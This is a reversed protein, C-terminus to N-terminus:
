RNPDDEAFVSIIPSRILVSIFPPLFAPNCVAITSVPTHYFDTVLANSLSSAVVAEATAHEMRQNLREEASQKFFAAFAPISSTITLLQQWSIAYLLTDETAAVRYMAAEQEDFFVTCIDGEGYMGLFEPMDGAVAYYSLAGKRLIFLCSSDVQAPPLQESQRVYCISTERVVQNVVDNPLTDFPPIDKVFAMLEALENDM